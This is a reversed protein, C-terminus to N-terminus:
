HGGGGELDVWESAMVLKQGQVKMWRCGSMVLNKTSTKETNPCLTQTTWSLWFSDQMIALNQYIPIYVLNTYQYIALNPMIALDQMIALDNTCDKVNEHVKFM